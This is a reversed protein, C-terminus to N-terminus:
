MLGFVKAYKMMLGPNSVKIKGMMVAMMANDEGKVVRMFKQADATVECEPEGVKGEEVTLKNDKATVTYKGGGEGTLDFFFSSDLGDLAEETAKAPLKNIFETATM